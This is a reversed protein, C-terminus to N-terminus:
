RIAIITEVEVAMGFPPEGADIALRVQRGADGRLALLLDSFGNLPNNVGV